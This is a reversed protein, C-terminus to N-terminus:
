ADDYLTALLETNTPSIQRVSINGITDNLVGAFRAHEKLEASIFTLAGVAAEDSVQVHPAARLIITRGDALKLTGGLFM